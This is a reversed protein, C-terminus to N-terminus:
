EVGSNPRDWILSFPKSVTQLLDRWSKLSPGTTGSASSNCRRMRTALLSSLRRLIFHAINYLLAYILTHVFIILMNAM